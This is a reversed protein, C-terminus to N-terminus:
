LAQAQLKIRLTINMAVFAPESFHVNKDGGVVLGVVWGGVHNTGKEDDIKHMSNTPFLFCFM